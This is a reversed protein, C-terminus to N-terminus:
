LYASRGSNFTQIQRHRRGIIAIAMYQIFVFSYQIRNPIKYRFMMQFIEMKRMQIFFTQSFQFVIKGTEIHNKDIIVPIAFVHFFGQMKQFIKDPFMGYQNYISNGSVFRHLFQPFFQYIM